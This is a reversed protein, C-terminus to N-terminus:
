ENFWKETAKYGKEILEIAVENEINLEFSSVNGTDITITREWYKEKIWSKEIQWLLSNIIATVYNSINNIDYNGHYIQDNRQEGSGVLKLGLTQNMENKFLNIPYNNLLGGDVIVDNGFEPCHKKEFLFPVSMSIRVACKVLMDPSTDVSFYVIKHKNLNTGTVILKIGFEEYIQKFTIDENGTKRKLLEGYYKEMFEGKYLGYRKFISFCKGFCCRSDRLEDFDMEKLTTELEIANYKVAILGAAIAGASSGAVVELNDLLHNEMLYKYAGAFAVGRIGGGELVLNKIPDM